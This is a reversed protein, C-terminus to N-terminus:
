PLKRLFFHHWIRNFPEGPNPMIPAPYALPKM